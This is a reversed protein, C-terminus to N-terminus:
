NKIITASRLNKGNLKLTLYYHGCTQGSLDISRTFSGTPSNQSKSFVIRGTADYVIIDTMGPVKLETSFTVIGNSPNPYVGIFPQSNEQIGTVVDWTTTFLGRGHSAALVKNDASRMQLMDVRVNAMGNNAPSWSLSGEGLNSSEWVGMETALLAHRASQPHFVVWRVPMDPLNAEVNQWSQGGDYTQFVSTVGYSSFTVMLTDESGGIAVCSLNALPFGAGSIENVVPTNSQAETVKFLRGSQSGVFLTAKGSPSHPSYKVASFFVSSGTGLTLYSGVINGTLNTLRLLHDQYNGVYDVANCYLTNLNYDFDAPSVFTGCSWNSTSNVFGGNIFIYYQNYYVSTISLSPNDNDYFCYAGDGGSVMDFITLPNGNYHLSGNDQLGGYFLDTGSSPHIACTYFQLTNYNINHEEMQPNSATGNATYFVGGDSGFLIEGSSGPKFVIIHQDAHIYDPGGGSYMKAWDSIRTWTNGGNNSKHMDLGGAYIRDANNPDVAIDLAHWAITAFNNGSTLDNPLNQKTWTLGRDASRLIHYCNFYNFNNGPNLYGSAILAYVINSNSPAAALVVRGPINNSSSNEIETLYQDNISWNLGDDSYLLTAAGEGNLNPRTGAYIRNDAGIVIDSIAYPVTSGIINPVVQNWTAGGDTSRYLGDTPQSQHNTEKYLGSAVGAYIVSNGNEARVAIKTVYAFGTTSQLQSWTEGGDNSKWIGTGLGSSERYTQMATEVEGTGIYFVQHNNPDYAMCRISLNSWLDSVPVWESPQSTINLNYWLGGTIGGAWVKKLNPDNPDYMIMRTRGGMNAGYGTWQLTTSNKLAMLADTQNLATILRERPVTGTNPDFTTLFEHFAAIEPQDARPLGSNESKKMLPAKKNLLVLSAEFKKRDGSGTKKSKTVFIIGTSLLILGVFVVLVAKRISNQFITKM